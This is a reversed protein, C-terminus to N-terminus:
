DKRHYARLGVLILFGLVFILLLPLTVIGVWSGWIGPFAMNLLLFILGITFGGGTWRSFAWWGWKLWNKQHKETMRIRM